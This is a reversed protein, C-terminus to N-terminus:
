RKAADVSATAFSFQNWLSLTSVIIKISYRMIPHYLYLPLNNSYKINICLKGRLTGNCHAYLNQLYYNM